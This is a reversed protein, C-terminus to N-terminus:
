KVLRVFQEVRIHLLRFLTFDEPVDNHLNLSNIIGKYYWIQEEKKGKFVDWMDEGDVKYQDIMSTINHLKDAGMIMREDLPAKKIYDITHEKRQRWPLSKDPESVGKVIRRINKGFNMEIDELTVKTDEVTDHLIGSNVVDESCGQDVLHMGVTYPHVIYPSNDGKRKQGHHANAAFVIAKEYKLM